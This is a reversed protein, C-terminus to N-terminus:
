KIGKKELCTTAHCLGNQTSKCSAVNESKLPKRSSYQSPKSPSTGNGGNGVFFYTYIYM